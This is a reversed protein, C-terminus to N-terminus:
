ETDPIPLGFLTYLDRGMLEIAKLCLEFSPFVPLGHFIYETYDPAFGRTYGYAIYWYATGTNQVPVWGENLFAAITILKRYPEMREFVSHTELRIPDPGSGDGGASVNPDTEWSWENILPWTIAELELGRIM